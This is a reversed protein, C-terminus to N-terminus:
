AFVRAAVTRSEARDRFGPVTVAAVHKNLRRPAIAMSRLGADIELPPLLALRGGHDRMGPFRLLPQMLAVIM